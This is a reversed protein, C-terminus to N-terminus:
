CPARVPQPPARPRALRFRYQGMGMCGRRGAGGGVQYAGAQGCAQQCEAARAQHHLDSPHGCPAPVAPPHLPCRRVHHHLSKHVLPCSVAVPQAHRSLRYPMNALGGGGGGARVSLAFSQGVCLLTRKELPRQPNRAGLCTPPTINLLSSPDNLGVGLSVTTRRHGARLQQTRAVTVRSQLCASLASPRVPYQLPWSASGSRVLPAVQVM